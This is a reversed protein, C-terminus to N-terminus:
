RVRMDAGACPWRLVRCLSRAALFAAGRCANDMTALARGDSFFAFQTCYGYNVGSHEYFHGDDENVGNAPRHRLGLGQRQPYGAIAINRTLVRALADPRRTAVYGGICALDRPTTWLGAAAYEPQNLRCIGSLRTPDYGCAADHETAPQPHAYNSRLATAPVLLQDRVFAPLPRSSARELWAEWVQYGGGSYLWTGTPGFTIAASNAPDAGLVIQDTTPLPLGPRYGTFGHLSTGATHSLLMTPTVGYPLRVLPALATQVNTGLTPAALDSLLYALAAVPKSVSGAQFTTTASLPAASPDFPAANSNGFVATHVVGSVDRYAVSVGPTTFMTMLAALSLTGDGYLDAAMAIMTPDRTDDVSSCVFPAAGADAVDPGAADARAVDTAGTDAPAADVGVADPVSADLPSADSVPLDALSAEPRADDAVATDQSAIDATGLDPRADAEGAVDPATADAQALDDGVADVQGADARGVEAADTTSAEAADPMSADSPAADAPRAADAPLAAPGSCGASLAGLVALTLRHITPRTM